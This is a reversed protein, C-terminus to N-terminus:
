SEPIATFRYNYRWSSWIDEIRVRGIEDTDGPKIVEELPRKPTRIYETDFLTVTVRRREDSVNAFAFVMEKDDFSVAVCGVDEICRPEHIPVNQRTTRYRKRSVEQPAPKTLRLARTTQRAGFLGTFPLRKDSRWNYLDTFDIRVWADQESRNEVWFEIQGHRREREFICLGDPWCRENM